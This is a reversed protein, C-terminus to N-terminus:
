LFSFATATFSQSPCKESVETLTSSKM